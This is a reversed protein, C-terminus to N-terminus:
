GAQSNPSEQQLPFDHQLLANDISHYHSKEEKNNRGHRACPLCRLGGRRTWKIDFDLIQM